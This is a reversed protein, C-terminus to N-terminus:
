TQLGIPPSGTREPVPLGVADSQHVAPWALHGNGRDEVTYPMGTNNQGCPHWCTDASKPPITERAQLLRCMPVGNSSTANVSQGKPYQRTIPPPCATTRFDSIKTMVLSRRERSRGGCSPESDAGNRGIGVTRNPSRGSLRRCPFSPNYM